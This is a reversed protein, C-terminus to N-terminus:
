CSSISYELAHSIPHCFNSTWNFSSLQGRRHNGCEIDHGSCEIWNALGRGTCSWGVRLINAGHAERAWGRTVILSACNGQATRARLPAVEQASFLLRPTVALVQCFASTISDGLWSWTRLCLWSHRHCWLASRRGGILAAPVSGQPHSVNRSWRTVDRSCRTRKKCTRENWIDRVKLSLYLNAPSLAM